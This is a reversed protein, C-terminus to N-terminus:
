FDIPIMYDNGKAEYSGILLRQYKSKTKLDFVEELKGYSEIKEGNEVINSYIGEYSIIQNLNESKKGKIIEVDEIVYKSPLFMSNNSDKIMARIKALGLYKCQENGYNNNINKIEKIPHISFRTDDFYGFSWQRSLIIKAIKKNFNFQETKRKIWNEIEHNSKFQKIRKSEDYEMILTKKIKKANNVGYITLDIDSFKPNHINILISGTVGFKDRNVGSKDKFYDVLAIVKEQLADRKKLNAIEEIKKDAEYYKKVYTLPVASIKVNNFKDNFIYDPYNELFKLSKQVSIASYFPIMRKLPQEDMKWKGVTDPAYKLYSIIRDSPHDYGVICFFFNDKTM